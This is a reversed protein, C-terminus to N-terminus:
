EPLRALAANGWFMVQELQTVALSKERGEPLLGNLEEALDLCLNRVNLHDDKRKDTTAPHFTFRNELEIPDM